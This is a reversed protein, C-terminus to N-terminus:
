REKVIRPYEVGNCRRQEVDLYRQQLKAIKENVVVSKKNLV